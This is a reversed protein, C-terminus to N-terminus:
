EKCEFPVYAISAAVCSDVSVILTQEIKTWHSPLESMEKELIQALQYGDEIAM